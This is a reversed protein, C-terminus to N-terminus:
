PAARFRRVPDHLNKVFAAVRDPHDTFVGDVRYQVFFERLEEQFSDNDRPVDDARFTYPHVVLGREHALAIADPSRVILNKAPGIGDAFTAIDDLGEATIMKRGKPNGSILMVQPLQSGLETRMRRLPEDEFCQVYVKADPDTYGYAKLIVLFDEEMPQGNERHFSPAKLEPYIGVNKGTSKNLGQVLEIMHEFRPVEFKATRKPFRGDIREHAELQRIEHYSFDIAYWRGDERHRKPFVQEVNTTGELHIDHLCIFVGDSTRVLDPEIYDAGQAYAMAYAELTHEPLYGSAGRHAIVTQDQAFAATTVLLAVASYRSLLGMTMGKERILLETNYLNSNPYFASVNRSLSKRQRITGVLGAPHFPM